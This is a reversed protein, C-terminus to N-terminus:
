TMSSVENQVKPLLIPSFAALEARWQWRGLWFLAFSFTIAALRAARHANGFQRLSFALRQCFWGL